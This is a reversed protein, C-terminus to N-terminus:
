FGSWPYGFFLVVSEGEQGTAVDLRYVFGSGTVLRAGVGTSSRKTKWLDGKQDAVTGIEYFMALQVGTRIDKAVFIDFPTNEDTLNWRFEVAIFESNASYFRGQDYSRLRSQGGLGDSNGYRNQSVQDKM